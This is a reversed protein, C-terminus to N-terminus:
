WLKRRYALWEEESLGATDVLVLPQHREKVAASGAPMNLVGEADQPSHRAGPDGPLAETRVPEAESVAAM